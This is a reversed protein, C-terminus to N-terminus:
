SKVKRAMRKLLFALYGAMMGSHGFMLASFRKFFRTPHRFALGLNYSLIYRSLMSELEEFSLGYRVRKDDIREEHNVGEVVTDLLKTNYGAKEVAAGLCSLGLPVTCYRFSGKLAVGPPSILMVREIKKPM